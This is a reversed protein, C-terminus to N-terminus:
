EEMKEHQQRVYSERHNGVSFFFFFFRFFKPSGREDNRPGSVGTKKSIERCAHTKRMMKHLLTFMLSFVIKLFLSFVCQRTYLLQIILFSEDKYILVDDDWGTEREFNTGIKSRSLRFVHDVKQANRYNYLLLCLIPTYHHRWILDLIYVSQHTRLRTHYVHSFM